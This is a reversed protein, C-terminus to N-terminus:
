CFPLRAYVFWTQICGITKVVDNEFNLSHVEHEPGWTGWKLEYTHANSVTKVLGLFFTM